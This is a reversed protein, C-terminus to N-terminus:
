PWPRRCSPFVQLHSYTLPTIGYFLLRAQRHAQDSFMGLALNEEASIEVYSRIEDELDQDLTRRRALDRCFARLYPIM